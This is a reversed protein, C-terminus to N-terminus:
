AKRARKEREREKNGYDVSKITKGDKNRIVLSWRKPGVMVHTSQYINTRTNSLPARPKNLMTQYAFDLVLAKTGARFPFCTGSKEQTALPRVAKAGRHLMEEVNWSSRFTVRQLNRSTNVACAFIAEELPSPGDNPEKMAEICKRLNKNGQALRRLDTVVCFQAIIEITNWAIDKLSMKEEHTTHTPTPSVNYWQKTQYSSSPKNEQKNKWFGTAEAKTPANRCRWRLPCTKGSHRKPSVGGQSVLKCM